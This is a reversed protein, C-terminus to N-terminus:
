SKRSPPSLPKLGAAAAAHIEDHPLPLPFDKEVVTAQSRPLIVPVLLYHTHRM